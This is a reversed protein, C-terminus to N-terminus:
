RRGVLGRALVRQMPDPPIAEDDCSLRYYVPGIGALFGALEQQNTANLVRVTSLAGPGPGVMLEAVGDGNVDGAGVRVGGTFGTEFVFFSALESRDAGRFVKV